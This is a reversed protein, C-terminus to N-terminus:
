LRVPGREGPTGEEREGKEGGGGSESVSSNEVLDDQINAIPSTNKLSFTNKQAKPKVASNNSETRKFSYYKTISEKFSKVTKQNIKNTKYPSHM